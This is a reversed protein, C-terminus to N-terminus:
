DLFANGKPAVPKAEQKADSPAGGFMKGNSYLIVGDHHKLVKDVMAANKAPNPCKIGLLVQDRPVIRLTIVDGVKAAGKAALAVGYDSIFWGVDMYTVIDLTRSLIEQIRKKEEASAKKADEGLCAAAFADEPKDCLTTGCTGLPKASWINSIILGGKKSKEVTKAEGYYFWAAHASLPACIIATAAMIALALTIKKVPTEKKIETKIIWPSFIICAKSHREKM